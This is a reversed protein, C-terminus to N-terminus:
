TTGTSTAGAGARDRRHRDRRDRRAAARPGPGGPRPDGHRLDAAARRHHGAPRPAAVDLDRHRHGRDPRLRQPVAPGAPALAAILDQPCAEGSVLLFRLAPLDEEITALLTPVCCLATVRHETLFGHLDAGLLSPGAPKPVLTAGAVWPVWIEEVSFDFAITMGQYVRDDPRHRVGRRRGPRLQLHQPARGRRGEAARHHRLHLDHLRPRRRLAASPTRSGPATRRGSTTPVVDVSLLQPAFRVARRSARAPAFLSLVPTRPTPCSTPSATPPFGPDLPVYAAGAKLVALMAVYAHVPDDFLLALRDGPGIGRRLLHRALQNARADLERIPSPRRVQTSPSIPPRPSGVCGTSANRSSKTSDSTRAAGRDSHAAPPSSCRTVTPCRGQCSNRLSTTM